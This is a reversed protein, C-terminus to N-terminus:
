AKQHASTASVLELIAQFKVADQIMRINNFFVYPDQISPSGIKPTPAETQSGAVMQGLERLEAEDYEYRWGNRGHLRYYVKHPTVSKRAFPDM